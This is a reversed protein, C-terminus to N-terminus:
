CRYNNGASKNGMLADLWDIIVFYSLKVYIICLEDFGNFTIVRRSRVCNSIFSRTLLAIRLSPSLGSFDCGFNLLKKLAKLSQAKFLAPRHKRM